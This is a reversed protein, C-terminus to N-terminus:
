WACWDESLVRLAINLDLLLTNVGSNQWCYYGVGLKNRKIFERSGAKKLWSIRIDNALYRPHVQHESSADPSALDYREGSDSVPTPERVKQNWAGVRQDRITDQKNRYIFVKSGRRGEVESPPARRTKQHSLQANLRPWRQTQPVDSDSESNEKSKVREREHTWRQHNKAERTRKGVSSNRWRRIEFWRWIGQHLSRVRKRNLCM